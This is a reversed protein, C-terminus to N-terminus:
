KLKKKRTKYMWLCRLTSRADSSIEHILKNENDDNITPIQSEDNGTSFTMKSNQVSGKRNLQEHWGQTGEAKVIVRKHNKKCAHKNSQWRQRWRHCPISPIKRKDPQMKYKRRGYRPIKMVKCYHIDPARTATTTLEVIEKLKGGSEQETRLPTDLPTKQNGPFGGGGRGHNKLIMTPTVTVPVSGLAGGVRVLWKCKRRESVGRSALEPYAM